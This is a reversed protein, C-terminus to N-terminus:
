DIVKWLTYAKMMESLVVLIFILPISYDDVFGVVIPIVSISPVIFLLRFPLQIFCILKARQSGVLLLFATVIISLQLAFSMLAAFSPLWGGVHKVVDVMLIADTIYPIRGKDISGLIFWVVYLLDLLGWFIVVIKSTIKTKLFAEIRNMAIHDKSSM